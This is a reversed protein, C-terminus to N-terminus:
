LPLLLNEEANVGNQSFTLSDQSEKSRPWYRPQSQSESKVSAQSDAEGGVGSPKEARQSGYTRVNAQRPGLAQRSNMSQLGHTTHSAPGSDGETDRATGAKSESSSGSTPRAQPRSGHGDQQAAISPQSDPIVSEEMQRAAGPRPPAAKVQRPRRHRSNSCESARADSRRRKNSRGSSARGTSELYQADSAFEIGASPPRDGLRDPAPADITRVFAGTESALGPELRQSLSSTSRTVRRMISRPQLAERRRVKEQDISPPVVPQTPVNAPSRVVVRRLHHLALQSNAVTAADEPAEGATGPHESATSSSNDRVRDLGTQSGPVLQSAKGADGLFFKSTEGCLEAERHGSEAANQSNQSLSLQGFVRALGASIGEVSTDAENLCRLGDINLGAQLAWNNLFAALAQFQARQRHSDGELEAARGQAVELEAELTKVRETLRSGLQDQIASRQALEQAAAEGNSEAATLRQQLSEITAADQREREERQQIEHKLKDLQAALSNREREAKLVLAKAEVCSRHMDNRVEQRATEAAQDVAIRLSRDMEQMSHTLNAVNSTFSQVEVAHAKDKADLKNQLEAIAADKSKVEEALRAAEAATVRLQRITEESDDHAADMALLNNELEHIQEAQKEMAERLSGLEKVHEECEAAKRKYLTSVMGNEEAKETLQKGLTELQNDLRQWIKGIQVEVHTSLQSVVDRSTEHSELVTDLKATVSESTLRSAAM